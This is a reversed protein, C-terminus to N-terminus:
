TALRIASRTAGRGCFCAPAVAGGVAAATALPNGRATSMIGSYQNRGEPNNNRRGRGRNGSVSRGRNNTAM